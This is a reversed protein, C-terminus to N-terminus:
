RSENVAVPLLRLDPFWTIGYYYAPEGVNRTSYLLIYSQVPESHLM